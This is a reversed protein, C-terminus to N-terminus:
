LLHYIMSDIIDTVTNFINLLYPFSTYVFSQQLHITISLQAISTSYASTRARARTYTPTHSVSATVVALLCLVVAMNVALCLLVRLSSTRYM